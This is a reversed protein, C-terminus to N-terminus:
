VWGSDVGDGCAKSVPAMCPEEEVVVRWAALAGFIAGTFFVPEEPEGRTMAMMPAPNEPVATAM